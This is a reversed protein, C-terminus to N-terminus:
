ATNTWLYEETLVDRSSLPSASSYPWCSQTINGEVVTVSTENAWNVDHLVFIIHTTTLSNPALELPTDV